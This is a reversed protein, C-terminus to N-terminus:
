SLEDRDVIAKLLEQVDTRARGLRQHCTNAACGPQDFWEPYAARLSENSEAQRAAGDIGDRLVQEAVVAILGQYREPDSSRAPVAARLCDRQTSFRGLWIQAMVLTGAADGVPRSPAPSCVAVGCDRVEVLDEPEEVSTAGLQGLLHYVEHILVRCFYARLNEIRQPDKVQFVACYAEQLADQALEPDGARRLALSRVKPDERIALLEQQFTPRGDPATTSNLPRM